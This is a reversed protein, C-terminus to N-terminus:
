HTDPNKCTGFKQQFADPSYYHGLALIVGSRVKSMDYDFTEADFQYDSSYALSAAAYLVGGPPWVRFPRTEIFGDPVVGLLIRKTDSPTTAKIKWYTPFSGSPDSAPPDGYVDFDKIRDAGCLPIVFTLQGDTLTLGILSPRATCGTLLLPVTVLLAVLGALRSRIRGGRM